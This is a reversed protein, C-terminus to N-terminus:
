KAILAYLAVAAANSVNLSAIPLRTPLTVLVDCHERILRRMGDGEAGLILVAKAPVEVDGLSTDSHEDLGIVTYGAAALEELTRSLNTEYAVPIHEAAGSATKAVIGELEPAHRRQMVVGDAGFACASRLIAGVNHPDTVQDLMLIVSKEGSEEKAAGISILDQIFAEELPAASMAAGQHVTDRGVLREFDEKSLIKVQPRGLGKSNAKEIVAEFQAENQESLYIAHVSRKPNLWAERVAHLGFLNARPGLSVKPERPAREERAPRTAREDRVPRLAREDRAPRADRPARAPRDSSDRKPRDGFDRKPRDASDSRPRAGADSRPRAGDRAPKSKFDKKFPKQDSRSDSRSDSRAPRSAPRARKDDKGDDRSRSAFGRGGAGTSKGAPKSENRAFSKGTPKGVPKGSPKRSSKQPPKGTKKMTANM